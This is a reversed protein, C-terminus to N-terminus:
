EGYSLKSKNEIEGIKQKIATETIKTSEADLPAPYWQNQDSSRNEGLKTFFAEWAQANDRHSNLYNRLEIRSMTEFNYDNM